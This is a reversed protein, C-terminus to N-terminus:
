IKSNHKRFQSPTIQTIKKFTKTFHSQDAFNLNNSIELISTNSLSLLVKAEDIKKMLIFQYLNMGYEKKFTNSLTNVSVGFADAIGEVTLNEYISNYVFDICNRVLRSYYMGKYEKVKESFVCMCEAVHDRVEDTSNMEEILQIFNDSITYAEEAPLGGDISARTALTLASIALNKQSRLHNDKALVGNNENVLIQMVIKAEETNGQSIYDLLQQEILRKHHLKLEMRNEVLELKIMNSLSQNFVPDQILSKNKETLTKGFIYQFLISLLYNFKIRSIVPISKLFSFSDSKEQNLGVIEHLKKMEQYNLETYLIPGVYLTGLKVKSNNIDIAAFIFYSEIIRINPFAHHNSEIQSLKKVLDQTDINLSTQRFIVENDPNSIFMPVSALSSLNVIFHEVQNLNM